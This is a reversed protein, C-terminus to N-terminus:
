RRRRTILRAVVLVVALIVANSVVGALAAQVLTASGGPLTAPLMVAVFVVGLTLPIVRGTM